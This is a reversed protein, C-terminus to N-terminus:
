LHPFCPSLPFIHINFIKRMRQIATFLPTLLYMLNHYMETTQIVKVAWNLLEEKRKTIYEIDLM